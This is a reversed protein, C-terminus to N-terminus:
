WASRNLMAYFKPLYDQTEQPLYRRKGKWIIGKDRAGEFWKDGYTEVAKAVYGPGWNYAALAKDLNKFRRVQEQFYLTGAIKNYEPDTIGDEPLNYKKAIYKYTEPMLQMRGTAGSKKNVAEQKGGSEIEEIVDSIMQIEDPFNIDSYQLRPNALPIKTEASASASIKGDKLQEVVNTTETGEDKLQDARAQDMANGIASRGTLDQGGIVATDIAEELAPQEQKAYLIDKDIKEPQQQQEQENLGFLVGLPSRNVVERPKEELWKGVSAMDKALTNEPDLKFEYAKDGLEQPKINYMEFLTIPDKIYNKAAENLKAIKDGLTNEPGAFYASTDSWKAMLQAKGREKDTFFNAPLTRLFSKFVGEDSNPDKYFLQGDATYRLNKTIDPDNLMAKIETDKGASNAYEVATYIKKVNKDLKRGEEATKANPSKVAEEVVKDIAPKNLRNTIGQLNTFKMDLTQNSDGQVPLYNYNVTGLLYNGGTLKTGPSIQSSTLVNNYSGLLPPIATPPTIQAAWEYSKADPNWGFGTYNLVNTILNENFARGIGTSQFAMNLNDRLNMVDAFAAGPITTYVGLKTDTLITDIGRKKEELTLNIFNDNLGAASTIGVDRTTMDFILGAQAADIKLVQGAYRVAQIKAEALDTETIDKGFQSMNSIYMMFNARMDNAVYDEKRQKAAEYQASGPEAEDMQQNLRGINDLTLSIDNMLSLQKDVSLRKLGPNDTTFQERQKEIADWNKQNWFKQRDKELDPLGGGFGERMGKVKDQPVGASLAKQDVTRMATDAQFPTLHGQRQMETIKSYEMAFSNYLDTEAKQKKDKEVSASASAYANSLKGFSDAIAGAWDSKTDVNPSEVRPLPAKASQSYNVVPSYHGSQLATEQNAMQVM